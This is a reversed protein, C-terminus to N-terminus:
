AAPHRAADQPFRGHGEASMGWFMPEWIGSLTGEDLTMVVVYSSPFISLFCLLRTM